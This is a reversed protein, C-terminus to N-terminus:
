ATFETSLQECIRSVTSRSVAAQPGLAEALSAEVDRTSLGRVFGAIVLPLAMRVRSTTISQPSQYPFRARADVAFEWHTDGRSRAHHRDDLEARVLLLMMTGVVVVDGSRDALAIPTSGSREARSTDAPGSRV